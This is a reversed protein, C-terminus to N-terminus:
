DAILQGPKWAKALELAKEVQERTLRAAVRRVSDKNDREDDAFAKNIKEVVDPPLSQDIFDQLSGTSPRPTSLVDYWACAIVLDQPAGEGREYMGALHRQAESWGKKALDSYIAFARASDKEAGLGRDYMRALGLKAKPEMFEAKRYWYLARSYDQEIGRGLEYSEALNAEARYEFKGTEAAKRWWYVAQTDNQPVGVGAAYRDGLLSAAGMENQDAALRLWHAAEVRDAAVPPYLGSLMNALNMQARAYGQEAGKRFWRLAQGYDRKIRTGAIYENGLEWQAGPDGQDAAKAWWAIAQADDEKVGRGIAYMEALKKEATPDGQAALPQLESLAKPYDGARYAALGENLDARCTGATAFAICFLALHKQM